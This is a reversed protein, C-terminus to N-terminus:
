SSRQNKKLKRENWKRERLRCRTDIGKIIKTRRKNHKPNTKGFMNECLNSTKPVNDDTLHLTFTKFYPIVKKQLQNQIFKPLNDFEKIFWNLSKTAEDYSPQNFMLM